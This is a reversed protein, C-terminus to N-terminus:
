VQFALCQSGVGDSINFNISTEARMLSCSCPFLCIPPLRIPYFVIKYISSPPTLHTLHFDQQGCCQWGPFPVTLAGEWCSGREGAWVATLHPWWATCVHDAGLELEPLLFPGAGHGPCLCLEALAAQGWPVAWPKSIGQAACTRMPFM